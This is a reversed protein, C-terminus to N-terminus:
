PSLTMELSYAGSAGSHGDVFVFYNSGSTVPLSLVELGGSGGSESCGVQSGPTTCLTRVYLSADYSPDLAINLTGTGGPVVKYVIDKTSPSNCAGTGTRDPNALSTNGSVTKTDGPAIDVLQGPCDDGQVSTSLDAALLFDGVSSSDYTDAFVYYTTGGTVSIALSESSGAFTQDACGLETGGECPASRVYLVPDVDNSVGLMELTLIGTAAPTIAYVWDPGDGGCSGQYSNTSMSITGGVTQGMGPSVAVATGDCGYNSPVNVTCANSCADADNTNGDDCDEVGLEAYGDGCTANKCDNTCADANSRNGDDCEEGPDPMGNGCGLGAHCDSSCADGDEENGDDCDEVGAHIFGDGCTAKVCTSPCDDTDDLNKDDCEEIGEEIFGDGCRAQTCDNLCEDTNDSNGDDCEEGLDPDAIGDGCGPEVVNGTSSSGGVASDDGCAAQLGSLGLAVALMAGLRRKM